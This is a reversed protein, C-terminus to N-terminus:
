LIPKTQSLEKLEEDSPVSYHRQITSIRDGILKATQEVNWGAKQHLKVCTARLAHFPIDPLGARRTYKRLINYATRSSLHGKSKFRSPFLWDNKNINIWMQLTQKTSEGIPVIKTLKKKHEYFTITSKELDVDRRKINVIDARRLGADIAVKILALDQLDTINAILIEVQKNTLAKEGSFYRETKFNM